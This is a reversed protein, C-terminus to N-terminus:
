GKGVREGGSGGRERQCAGRAPLASAHFECPVECPTPEYDVHQEAVVGVYVRRREGAKQGEVLRRHVAVQVRDYREERLLGLPAIAPLRRAGSNLGHTASTPTHEAAAQGDPLPTRAAELPSALFDDVEGDSAAEAPAEAQLEPQVEIQVKAQAEVALFDDEVDEFGGFSPAEEGEPEAEEAEDM